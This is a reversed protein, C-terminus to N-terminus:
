EVWVGVYTIGAREIRQRNLANRGDILVSVGNAALGKPDLDILEEHTTVLVVADADVYPSDVTSEEEFMPDYTEVTCDYRDLEAKLDFYPSHRTDSVDPKFTKGLLLVTADYLPVRAANLAEIIKRAVRKPMQENIDRALKLMRHDFGSQNARDILLHPDVPICHGGVGVGREFRMFGFPKTAAAALTETADIGLGELSLAIENVFAINIDRFANM